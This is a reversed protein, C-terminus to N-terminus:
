GFKKVILTANQGGFGLSNSMAVDIPIKIAKNPVLDLDCEPDQDELNITPFVIGHHMTLISAILEVGGTAGQLHGTMSKTSNAKLKYVHDKFVLKMAKVELADGMVTSTGHTNVYQIDEPAMKAKKLASVMSRAAGLREETLATEHFADASAGYGVVEAYIRAGRELAFELEELVVLGVGESMVFGDRDKDFPRSARTPDDNRRSLARLSALGAMSLPQACADTGGAIVAVADGRRIVEYAEGIAHTGSACASVPCWCPGSAGLAISVQAAPINVTCKTSVLPSVRTPGRTLLIEYQEEITGLGGFGSGIISGIDDSNSENIDLGADKVAMRAAVVAFQSVRDLRPIQRPEFHETPDFNKVEGAIRVSFQSADWRTIPGIGSVGNSLNEFIEQINNGIPTLAGLGTVVVRKLNM